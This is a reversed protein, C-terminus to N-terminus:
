MMTMMRQLKSVWNSDASMATLNLEETKVVTDIELVWVTCRWRRQRVWEEASGNRRARAGRWRDLGGRRERNPLFGSFFFFFHIFSLLSSGFLLLILGATLAPM